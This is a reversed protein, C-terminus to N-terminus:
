RWYRGMEPSLTIRIEPRRAFFNENPNNIVVVWWLKGRSYGADMNYATESIIIPRATAGVQAQTLSASALVLCM